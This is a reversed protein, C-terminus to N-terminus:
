GGGIAYSWVDIGMSDRRDMYEDFVVKLVELVEKKSLFHSSPPMLKDTLPSFNKMIIKCKERVIETAIEKVETESVGELQLAEHAVEVMSERYDDPNEVITVIEHLKSAQM